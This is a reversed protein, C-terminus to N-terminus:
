MLFINRANCCQVPKVIPTKAALRWLNSDSTYYNNINPSVTYPVFPINHQTQVPVANPKSRFMLLWWWCICTVFFCLWYRTNAPLTPLPLSEPQGNAFGGYTINSSMTQLLLASPPPLIHANFHMTSDPFSVSPASGQLPLLSASGFQPMVRHGHSHIGADSLETHGHNHGNSTIIAHALNASTTLESSIPVPTFALLAVM